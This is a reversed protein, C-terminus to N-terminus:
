VTAVIFLRRFPYLTEGSGCGLDYVVAPSTLLVRDLLELTPRLRHDSFKGYQTPDWRTGAIQEPHIDATM